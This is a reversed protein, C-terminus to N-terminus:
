SDLMISNDVEAIDKDFAVSLNLNGIDSRPSLKGKSFERKLTNHYDM